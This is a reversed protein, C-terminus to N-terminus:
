DTKNKNKNKNENKNENGIINEDKKENEKM